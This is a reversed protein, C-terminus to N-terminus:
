RKPQLRAPDTTTTGGRSQLSTTFPTGRSGRLLVSRMTAAATPQFGEGSQATGGIATGAWTGGPRGGSLAVNDFIGTALTSDGSSSATGLSQSTTVADPSTAFLLDMLIVAAIMGTVWGRVTRFKVWEARLVYGFGAKDTPTARGPAKTTTM